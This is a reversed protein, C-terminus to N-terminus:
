EQYRVGTCFINLYALHQCNRVLATLTTAPIVDFANLDGRGIWLQHLTGVLKFAKSFDTSLKM